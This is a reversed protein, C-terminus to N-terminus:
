FTFRVSFRGDFGPNFIDGQLYRPDRFGSTPVNPSKQADPTQALLAEYDYGNFLNITQLRLASGTLRNGSTASLRNYAEFVHRVQRQDFLNLANFEFRLRKTGALKVEHSVLLNTQNLAPTRGESGRGEAFLGYNLISWVQKSIPTGSGAYFNLGVSTGIPFLYSGFLKLVHPRDTPLRGFVFDGHSNFLYEDNDFARTANSGPRTRQGFAEQAGGYALGPSTVEDTNVTGAYNGYLKSWVYSGSLFWSNALRRNATLELATYERKPKPIDFVPSAGTPLFQTKGLGEGPNGYIYVENGNVLTGIDEITRILNTRVFNVGFVTRNFQYDFGVNFAESSMPKIDPDIQEEGFSPVRHDKWSDSSGDWLNRGTLNALSL